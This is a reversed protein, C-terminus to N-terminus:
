ILEEISVGFYEAIKKIKDVKPTYSGAKWEYLTSPAIGTDKAVQYVTVNHEKLLSEFKEYM